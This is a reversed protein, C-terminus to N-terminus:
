ERSRWGEVLSGNRTTAASGSEVLEASSGIVDGSGSDRMSDEMRYRHVKGVSPPRSLPDDYLAIEPPPPLISSSASISRSHTSEQGERSFPLRGPSLNRDYHQHRTPPEHLHSPPPDYPHHPLRAHLPSGPPSHSQPQPDTQGPALLSASKRKSSKRPVKPKVSDQRRLEIGGDAGDYAPQKELMRASPGPASLAINVDDEAGSDNDSDSDQSITQPVQQRLGRSRGAGEDGSDDDSGDSDTDHGRDPAPPTPSTVAMGIGKAKREADMLAEPARSSRVVTFGSERKGGFGLRKWFWGKAVAVPGTPDAPGTGLRRGPQDNLAPGRVGYYFDGERVEYNKPATNRVSSATLSSDTLRHALQEAPGGRGVGESYAGSTPSSWIDDPGHPLSGQSSRQRGSPGSTAAGWVESVWSGRSRAGPSYNDSGSGEGPNRPGYTGGKVRPQRYYPGANVGTDLSLPPGPPPLYSFNSTAGPTTPTFGTSGSGSHHHNSQNGVEMMGSVGTSVSPGGLLVASSGTRSMPSVGAGRANATSIKHDGHTSVNIISPDIHQKHKRRSLQRM